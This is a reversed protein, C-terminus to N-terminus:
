HHHEGPNLGAANYGPLIEGVQEPKHILITLHQPCIWHQEERYEIMILAVTSSDRNCFLCTHPETSTM